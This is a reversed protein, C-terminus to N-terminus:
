LFRNEALPIKQLPLYWGPQIPIKPSTSPVLWSTMIKLFHFFGLEAKGLFLIQATFVPGEM